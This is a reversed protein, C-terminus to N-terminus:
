GFHNFREMRINLIDNAFARVLLAELDDIMGDLVWYASFYSALEHLRLLRDTPQRPREYASTFQQERTPHPVLRIAQVEGRERVFATNMEKWLSQRRAKGVYLARGRSDYFIYLGSRSQLEARLGRQLLSCSKAQPLIEFKGGGKSASRTIAYFEVIPKITDYQADAVAIKTAKILANSIQFAGLEKESNAWARVTTRSVGLRDAIAGDGGIDYEDSFKKRLNEVFEKAIM